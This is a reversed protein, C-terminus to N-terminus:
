SKGPASDSFVPIKKRLGPTFPFPLSRTARCSTWPRGTWRGAASSIIHDSNDNDNNDNNNDDNDDNDCNDNNDNYMYM